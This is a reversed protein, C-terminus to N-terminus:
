VKGLVLPETNVAVKIFIVATQYADSLDTCSLVLSCRIKARIKRTVTLSLFWVLLPESVSLHLLSKDRPSGSSSFISASPM